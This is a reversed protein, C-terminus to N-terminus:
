FIGPLIGSWNEYDYIQDVYVNAVVKAGRKNEDDSVYQYDIWLYDQGNKEIDKVPGITITNGVTVPSSQAAKRNKIGNFNLTIEYDGFGRLSGTAGKFKCEGIDWSFPVGDVAAAFTTGNVTDTMRKLLDIYDSTVAAPYITIQFDFGSVEIDLGEIGSETVNLLGDQPTPHTTQTSTIANWNYTKVHSVGVTTHQTGGATNFSFQPFSNTRFDALPSYTVTIEWTYPPIPRAHFNSIIAQISTSPLFIITPIQGFGPAPNLAWAIVFAEEQIGDAPLGTVYYIKVNDPNKGYITEGSYAGESKSFAM